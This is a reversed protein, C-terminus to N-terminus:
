EGIAAELFRSCDFRANAARMAPILAKALVERQKRDAINERIAQAIARYERRGM